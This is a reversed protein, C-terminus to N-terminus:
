FLRLRDGKRKWNLIVEMQRLYDLRNSSRSMMKDCISLKHRLGKLSIIGLNYVTIIASIFAKNKRIVADTNDRFADIWMVIEQAKIISEPDVTFQGSKVIASASGGSNKQRLLMAATTHPVQWEEKFNKLIEYNRNGKQIYSEVYDSLIWGKSNSNLQQVTELSGSAVVYYISLGLNSAAHLRHQGDIVTMKEDVIIPNADLLNDLSISKELKKVHNVDVRRNGNMFKFRHFENTKYIKM